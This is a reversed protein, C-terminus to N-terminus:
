GLTKKTSTRFHLLDVNESVSPHIPGASWSPSEKRGKWLAASFFLSENKRVKAGMCVIEEELMLVTQFFGGYCARRMLM